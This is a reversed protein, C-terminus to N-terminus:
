SHSLLMPLQERGGSHVLGARTRADLLQIVLAPGIRRAEHYDRLVEPAEAAQPGERM